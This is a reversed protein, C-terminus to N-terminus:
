PFLIFQPLRRHYFEMGLSRSLQYLSLMDASNNNSVTCGFGIDKLGMQKLALLTCSGRTLDVPMVACSTTRAASGRDIHRCATDPFRRALAIVRDEFWGSTSIMLGVPTATASRSLKLSPRRPHIARRRHSKHIEPRASKACFRGRKDGRTQRYPEQWINCMKCRMPCATLSSLAPTPRCRYRINIKWIPYQHYNTTSLSYPGSYLILGAIPRNSPITNVGTGAKITCHPSNNARIGHM